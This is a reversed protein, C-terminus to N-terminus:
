DSRFVAASSPVVLVPGPFEELVEEASSGLLARTIASRGHTGVILLDAKTTSAVELIGGVAGGRVVQHSYRVGDLDLKEELSQWEPELEEPEIAYVDSSGVFKASLGHLHFIPELVHLLVLEADWMKALAAAEDLAARSAESFDTTALIRAPKEALEDKAILVPLRAGQVIRGATRGVGFWGPRHRTSPGVLLLDDGLEAARSLIEVEPVGLYVHSAVKVDTMTDGLVQLSQRAKEIAQEIDPMGSVKVLVRDYAPPPRLIHILDLEAGSSRALRAASKLVHDTKDRFDIGVGVRTMNNMGEM